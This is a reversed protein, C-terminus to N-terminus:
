FTLSPGDLVDIPTGAENGPDFALIPTQDAERVDHPYVTWLYNDVLGAATLVPLEVYLPNQAQSAALDMLDQLVQANDYEVLEFSVLDPFADRIAGRVLFEAGFILDCASM